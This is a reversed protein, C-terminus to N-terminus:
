DEGFVGPIHARFAAGVLTKKRMQSYFTKLHNPPTAFNGTRDGHQTEAAPDSEQLVGKGNHVRHKRPQTSQVSSEHDGNSVARTDVRKETHKLEQLLHRRNINGFGHVRVEVM